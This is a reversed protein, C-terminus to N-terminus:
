ESKSKSPKCACNEPGDVARAAPMDSTGTPPVIERELVVGFYSGENGGLGASQEISALFRNGIFSTL